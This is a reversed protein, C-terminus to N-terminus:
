RSAGIIFNGVRSKYAILCFVGVICFLIYKYGYVTTPPYVKKVNDTRGDTHGCRKTEKIDQLIM